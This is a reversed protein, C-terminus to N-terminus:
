LKYKTGILSSSMRRDIQGLKRFLWPDHNAKRPLYSQMILDLQCDTWPFLSQENGGPVEVHGVAVCYQVRSVTVHHM